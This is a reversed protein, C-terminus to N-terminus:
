STKVTAGRSLTKNDAFAFQQKHCSACSVSANASLLPEIFLKHGLAIRGSTTQNNAPMPVPPLGLPNKRALNSAELTRSKQSVLLSPYLAGGISLIILFCVAFRANEPMAALRQTLTNPSENAILVRPYGKAGGLPTGLERDAARVM